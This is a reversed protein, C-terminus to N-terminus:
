LALGKTLNELHSFINNKNPNSSCCLLEKRHHSSIGKKIRITDRYQIQPQYSNTKLKLALEVVDKTMVDPQKETPLDNTGVHIITHDSKERTTLQAYGQMSRTIPGPYAKVYVKCIKIHIFIEYDKLHKVNSGGLIFVRKNNKEKLKKNEQVDYSKDNNVDSSNDTKSREYKRHNSFSTVTFDVSDDGSNGISTEESSSM